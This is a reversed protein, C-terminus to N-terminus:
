NIDGVKTLSEIFKRFDLKLLVRGQQGYMRSERNGSEFAVFMEAETYKREGSESKQGAIFAEKIEEWRDGITAFPAFVANPNPIISNAYEEALREIEERTKM